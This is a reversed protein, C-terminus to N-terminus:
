KNTVRNIVELCKKNFVEKTFNNNYLDIISQNNNRMDILENIDVISDKNVNIGTKNNNVFNWTDGKINNIIPLGYRFYDICKVTLGIYLNEKYINLGAHCESFIRQKKDEDYIPGYYNVECVKKLSNIMNEKNEGVGIIYLIVKKDIKKIIEKMTEVDIINNISGIYCLSLKDDNTNNKYEKTKNGRAWYITTLLGKYENKLIDQYYNCETVVEDACGINDKRISKWIEFPFTKKIFGLPLSEPWMDIVDVIIKVNPNKKKFNKAEKILSLCPAVVWLLNPKLLWIKKFADKAFEAHSILRSISLNSSYPRTDIAYFGNPINIRKTKRIHSFDSTIVSVDYNNDELLSKLLTVREENSEFCTVITAKM